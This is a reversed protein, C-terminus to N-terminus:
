VATLFGLAILAQAVYYFAWVAHLMWFRQSSGPALLFRETALLADSAIFLVAGVIIRRDPLTLAALGMALIAVVYVAIPMRLGAEVRPWLVALMVVAFIAIAIGILLRPSSLLVDLGGGAHAFLVVYLVHAALFSALGGLFAKDGQRSLFADGLASFGLAGVLLLPGGHMLALAALLLVPVTKVVSRRLSVPADLLFFYVCAAAVSFLLMGNATAELGGAFPMM